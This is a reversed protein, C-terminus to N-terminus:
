RKLYAAGRLPTRKVSNNPWLWRHVATALLAGILWAALVKYGFALLGIVALGGIVAVVFGVVPVSQLRLAVLHVALAVVTAGLGFVVIADWVALPFGHPMAIANTYGLALISAAYTAAGSAAGVISSKVSQHM